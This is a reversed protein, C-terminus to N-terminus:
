YPVYGLDEPVEYNHVFEIARLSDSAAGVFAHMELAFSPPGNKYALFPGLPVSANLQWLGESVPLIAEVTEDRWEDRWYEAASFDVFREQVDPFLEFGPLTPDAAAITCDAPDLYPPDELAPDDESPTPPDAASDWCDRVLAPLTDPTSVTVETDRAIKLIRNLYQVLDATIIGTKNAAAALFSGARVFDRGTLSEPAACAPDFGLATFCTAAGDGPLLHRVSAHFKPWDEPGLAPHYQTGLAPDGHFWPDVEMPDTQLHGYKMLRTYLGLSEMPSDITAWEACTTQGGANPACDFGLVLRGTQEQKVYGAEKITSIVENLHMRNNREKTRGGNLRGFYDVEEVALPDAVDCSYPLFGLENGAADVAIPCYGWGYGPIEKPLEIWRQALIPQGTDPNRLIHVLDGFVDGCGTGGGGHDQATAPAAAVLVLLVTSSVGVTRKWNSM